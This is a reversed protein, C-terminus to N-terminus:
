RVRLERPTRTMRVPGSETVHITESFPMGETYLIMHFVMGAEIIWNVGRMFIRTHDSTRPVSHYGLIYGSVQPFTKKLGEQLMAERCIRDVDGANSGPLMAAIQKDQIAVIREAVYKQRDTAYGIAIPRAIRASYGRVQPVAEIFYLEGSEMTRLESRGHMNAVTSGYGFGAVCRSNDAGLRIAKTYTAVAPERESRGVDIAEIGAHLCADAIESANQLCVLEEPSKVLRLEWIIKGFDVFSVLTLTNKLREYVKITLFHSDTEIALRKLGSRSLLAELAAIEDDHDHFSVLDTVWTSRQASELDSNRVLLTVSGDKYLAAGQFRAGSHAYGTLYALSDIETILLCDVSREDMEFLVLAVRRRYESRSFAWSDDRGAGASSTRDIM